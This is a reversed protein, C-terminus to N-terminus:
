LSTPKPMGGEIWRMYYHCGMPGDWHLGKYVVGFLMDDARKRDESSGLDRLDLESLLSLSDGGRRSLLRIIYYDKRWMKTGPPIEKVVERFDIKLRKVAWTMEGNFGVEDLRKMMARCKRNVRADDPYVVYEGGRWKCGTEVFWDFSM